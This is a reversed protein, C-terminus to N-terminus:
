VGAWRLAALAMVSVAAWLILGHVVPRVGVTRLSALSLNLGVLLLTVTMGTKALRLLWPSAVHVPQILTSALSAALFWGIFWPMALKGRAPPPEAGAIPRGEDDNWRAVAYRAALAVPVIWLTRSLKVVTATQLADPGFASAAAVVSSVDHIAVGAWTGFQAQSLGLAHGLPPFAYLAVANLLFVTGLAVTVEAEAAAIALAVAAIASGGCIATGASLLTATTRRLRLARRLAAGLLFTLTITVAAIALGDRAERLVVALNTGFGLLVVSVQLLPKSFRRTASPWPNGLTLALALGAALALGPSALPTLAFVLAAGAAAWALVTPFAPSMVWRVGQLPM